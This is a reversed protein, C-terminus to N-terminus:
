QLLAKHKDYFALGAQYGIDRLRKFNSASWDMAKDCHEEPIDFDVKLLEVDPAKHKAEFLKTDDEAITIFPLMISLNYADGLDRPRRILDQKNLINMVVITGIDEHKEILGKYNLCDIYSGEGYWAGDIEQQPCIYFLSSGAVVHKRTIERKDFLAVQKRTIDLANIYVEPEINKLGEFDIMASLGSEFVRSISTSRPTMVFPAWMTLGLLYLDSYFRQLENGPSAEFFPNAQMMWMAWQEWLESFPGSPRAFIKYNAGLVDYIYDSLGTANVWAELNERGSRGGAPSTYCLTQVAGICAGSIVDFQVGKEDLAILAGAELAGLPGGACMLLAKKDKKVTKDGPLSGIPEQQQTSDHQEAALTAAAVPLPFHVADRKISNAANTHQKQQSQREVM